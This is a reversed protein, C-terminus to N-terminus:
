NYRIKCVNQTPMVRHRSPLRLMELSPFQKVSDVLCYPGTELSRLFPFSIGDDRVVIVTHNTNENVRLTCLTRPLQCINIARGFLHSIYVHRLRPFVYAKILGEDLIVSKVLKRRILAWTQAASWLPSTYMLLVAEFEYRLGSCLQTCVCLNKLSLFSGIVQVMFRNM